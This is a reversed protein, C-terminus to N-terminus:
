NVWNTWGQSVIIMQESTDKTRVFKLLPSNNGAALAPSRKTGGPSTRERSFCGLFLYKNVLYLHCTYAYVPSVTALLHKNFPCTLVFADLNRRHGPIHRGNFVVLM